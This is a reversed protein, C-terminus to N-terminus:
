VGIAGADQTWARLPHERLSRVSFFRWGAPLRNMELAPEPSGPRILAFVASGSGTMRTEGGLPALAALADLIVPEIAAATKQLDNRGPLEPWRNRLLDSFVRIRQSESDRTLSPSAFIKATSVGRGPWIVAYEAPPVFLPSVREGIGEVFANQGHIFFPVDAGLTEGIRALEARDLGLEWLRNLGILTTAADSSGGGMGAGAPIRKEVRIRVGKEAAAPGAAARLAEAARWCLDAEPACELDGTREIRGAPLETLDVTDALDILIFISELLHKGDARRGIVHLFLNLKAPAPLGLLMHPTRAAASTSPDTTMM